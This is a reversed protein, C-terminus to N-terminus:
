KIVKKAKLFKEVRSQLSSQTEDFDYAPFIFTMGISDIHKFCLRHSGIFVDWWGVIIQDESSIVGSMRVPSYAIRPKM